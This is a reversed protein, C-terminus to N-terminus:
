TQPASDEKSLPHTKLNDIFKRRKTSVQRIKISPMDAWMENKDQALLFWDTSELGTRKVDAIFIDM